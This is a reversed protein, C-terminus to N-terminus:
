NILNGGQLSYGGLTHFTDHMQLAIMRDDPLVDCVDECYLLTKLDEKILNGAWDFSEESWPRFLDNEKGNYPDNEEFYAEYVLRKGSGPRAAYLLYLHYFGVVIVKYDKALVDDFTKPPRGYIVDSYFPPSLTM